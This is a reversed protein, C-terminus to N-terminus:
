HLNGHGYNSGGLPKVRLFLPTVTICATILRRDKATM